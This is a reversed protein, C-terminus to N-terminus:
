YGDLAQAWEMRGEEGDHRVGLVGSHDGGHGAPRDCVVGYRRHSKGCQHGGGEPSTISLIAWGEALGYRPGELMHIVRVRLERGTYELPKGARMEEGSYRTERLWLRDGVRYDRDNFRIEWPKRGQYVDEFVDPDTKLEHERPSSPEGSEDPARKRRARVLDQWHNFKALFDEEAFLGDLADQILMREHDTPTYTGERGRADEGVLEYEDLYKKMAEDVTELAARTEDNM